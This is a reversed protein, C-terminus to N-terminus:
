ARLMLLGEFGVLSGVDDHRPEADRAGIHGRIPPEVCRLSAVTEGREAAVFLGCSPELSRELLRGYSGAGRSIELSLVAGKASVESKGHGTEPSVQQERASEACGCQGGFGRRIRRRQRVLRRLGPGRAIVGRGFIFFALLAVGLDGGLPASRQVVLSPVIRDKQLGVRELGQGKASSAMHGFCIRRMQGWFGRAAEADPAHRAVRGLALDARRVSLGRCRRAVRAAFVRPEGCGLGALAAVLEFKGLGLFGRHLAREFLVFGRAEFFEGALLAVHGEDSGGPSAFVAIVIEAHNAIRRHQARGNGYSGAAVAVHRDGDRERGRAYSVRDRRAIHEPADLDPGFRDSIARAIRDDRGRDDERPAERHHRMFRSFGRAALLHAVISDGRAALLSGCLEDEGL